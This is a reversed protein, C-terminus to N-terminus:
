VDPAEADPAVALIAEVIKDELDLCAAPSLMPLGRREKWAKIIDAAYGHLGARVAARQYLALQSKAIVEPCGLDAATKPHLRMQHPKLKM